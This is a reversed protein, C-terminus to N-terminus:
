QCRKALQSVRQCVSQLLRQSMPQIPTEKQQCLDSTIVDCQNPGAHFSNEVLLNSLSLDLVDYKANPEFSFKLRM